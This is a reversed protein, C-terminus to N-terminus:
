SGRRRRSRMKEEVMDVLAEADEHTASGSLYIPGLNFTDGGAGAFARLQSMTLVAEGGPADGVVALTPRAVFAGQALRPISIGARWNSIATELAGGLPNGGLFGPIKNLFSNIPDMLDAIGGLLFNIGSEVAGIAVNIGARIGDGLAEFATKGANFLRTGLGQVFGVVENFKGVIGDRIGTVIEMVKTKVTGWMGVLFDRVVGFKDVIQDKLWLTKDVIFGTAADWKGKMFATVEGWNKILLVIGISLAAIAAIIGIVPLAAAIMSVTFAIVAATLVVFAGVLLSGVILAVVKMTQENDKLFPFLKEAVRQLDRIKPVLAQFADRVADIAPQFERQMTRAFEEALPIGKRSLWETVETLKDIMKTLVPEIKVLVRNKLIGLNEQWTRTEKATKAIQGEAQSLTHALEAIDLTGTRVAVSLRQAGEAGFADQAIKLAEAASGAGAIKGLTDEFAQGLDTVGEDALKRMFANIGPMVRSVDLGASTLQGILAIQNELGLGLNTLVPGYDNLTKALTSMPVNTNQSAVFLKDFFATADRGELNMRKIAKGAEDMLPGADEGMIRAADLANRAMARLNNGSEGTLTNLTSISEAVKDMSDPGTRLVAKFDENLGDLADGTAGTGVRIANFASQFDSGFKLAAVGLAVLGAAAGLVAIKGLKALAGGLRGTAGRINRLARSAEDRARIVVTFDQEAGM